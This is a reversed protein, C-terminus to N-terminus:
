RASIMNTGLRKMDTYTVRGTRLSVSHRPMWVSSMALLAASM